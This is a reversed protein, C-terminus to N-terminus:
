YYIRKKLLRKFIPIFSYIFSPKVIYRLIYASAYEFRQAINGFTYFGDRCLMLGPDGAPWCVARVVLGFRRGEPYVALIKRKSSLDRCGGGGEGGGGGIM